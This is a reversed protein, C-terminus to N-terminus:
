QFVYKYLIQILIIYLDITMLKIIELNNNIDVFNEYKKDGFAFIKYYKKNNKLHYKKLM